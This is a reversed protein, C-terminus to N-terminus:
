SKHLDSFTELNIIKYIIEHEKANKVSSHLLQYANAKTHYKLKFIQRKVAEFQNTVTQMSLQNCLLSASGSGSGSGGSGCLKTPVPVPAPVM